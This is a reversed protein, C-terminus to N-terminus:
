PGLVEPGTETQPVRKGKEVQLESNNIITEYINERKELSFSLLFFKKEVAGVTDVNVAFAASYITNGKKGQKGPLKYKQDYQAEKGHGRNGVKLM